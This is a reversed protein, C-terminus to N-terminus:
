RVLLEVGCARALTLVTTLPLGVVNSVSGEIREVLAGGAEQLAYAGAKDAVDDRRLYWEITADDLTVFTVLTTCVEATVLGARRVAVGTHVAHTRGSLLGLMRRADDLDAPKALIMGDVDVTTDAAVVLDAPGAPVATVKDIAVRRVYDPPAEGPRESEDVDPSVVTIAVGLRGLLERRRPSSSALVVSPGVTDALTDAAAATDAVADAVTDAM